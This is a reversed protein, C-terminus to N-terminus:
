IFINETRIKTNKDVTNRLIFVFGWVVERIFMKNHVQREAHPEVERFAVGRETPRGSTPAPYLHMRRRELFSVLSYVFM